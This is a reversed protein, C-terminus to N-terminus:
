PESQEYVANVVMDYNVATFTYVDDSGSCEITKEQGDNFKVSLSVFQYGETPTLTLTVTEGALVSSPDIELTAGTM